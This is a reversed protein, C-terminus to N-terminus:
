PGLEIGEGTAIKALAYATYIHNMNLFIFYNLTLM